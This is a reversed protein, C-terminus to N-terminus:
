IGANLKHDDNVAIAMKIGRHRNANNYEDALLKAQEETIDYNLLQDAVTDSNKVDVLIVKAM